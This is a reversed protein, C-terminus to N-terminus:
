EEKDLAQTPVCARLAKDIHQSFLILDDFDDIVRQLWYETFPYQKSLLINGERSLTFGRIRKLLQESSSLLAAKFVELHPVAEDAFLAVSVFRQDRPVALTLIVQFSIGKNLHSVWHQKYLSLVNQQCSIKWFDSFWGQQELERKLEKFLLAVDPTNEDNEHSEEREYLEKQINGAYSFQGEGTDEGTDEGDETFEDVM